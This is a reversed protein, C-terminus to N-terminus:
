THSGLAAEGIPDGNVVGKVDGGSLGVEGVDRIPNGPIPPISGPLNLKNSQIVFHKLGAAISFEFYSRAFFNKSLKIGIDPLEREIQYRDSSFLEDSLDALLIASNITQFLKLDGHNAWYSRQRLRDGLRRLQVIEILPIAEHNCRIFSRSIYITSLIRSDCQQNIHHLARRLNTRAQKGSSDPWLKISLLERSFGEAGSNASLYLYALLERAKLQKPLALPKGKYSVCFEGMLRISLNSSPKEGCSM